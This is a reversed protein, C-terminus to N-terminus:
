KLWKERTSTRYLEKLRVIRSSTKKDEEAWNKTAMEMYKKRKDLDTPLWLKSVNASHGPFQRPIANDLFSIINPDQVIQGTSAREYRQATIPYVKTFRTWLEGDKQRQPRKREIWMAERPNQTQALETAPSKKLM